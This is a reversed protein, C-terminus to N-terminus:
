HACVFFLKQWISATASAPAKQVFSSGPHCYGRYHYAEAMWNSSAAAVAAAYWHKAGGRWILGSTKCVEEARGLGIGCIDNKVCLQAAQLDTTVGKPYEVAGNVHDAYTPTYPWWVVTWVVMKDPHKKTDDGWLYSSLRHQRPSSPMDSLRSWVADCVVRHWWNSASASQLLLSPAGRLQGGCLKIIGTVIRMAYGPPKSGDAGSYTTFVQLCHRRM